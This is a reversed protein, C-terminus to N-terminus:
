LIRSKSANALRMTLKIKESIIKKNSNELLSHLRKSLEKGSVAGIIHDVAQGNYFFIFTPLEIIGYSDKLQTGKDIDIEYFKIRGNYEDALKLMVPKMIHCAGSWNAFFVVVAPRRSQIVEKNFNEDTLMKQNSKM